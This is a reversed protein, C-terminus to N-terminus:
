EKDKTGTDAKKENGHKGDNTPSSSSETAGKATPGRTAKKDATSVKTSESTSEMSAGRVEGQAAVDANAKPEKPEKVAETKAEKEGRVAVEDAPDTAEEDPTEAQDEGKVAGHKETAQTIDAPSGAVMMDATETPVALTDAALFPGQVPPRPPYCCFPPLPIFQALEDLGLWVFALGVDIGFDVLNEIAGGDGRLWDTFNFVGSAVMSEFFNYFVMIQGAFWGVWPIWRVIATAVEFGYQVWPEVAIYIGDITDALNPAIALQIPAPPPPLTGPTAAPGLLRLPSTLLVNLLPPQEALALPQVVAIQQVPPASRPPSAAPTPEQVSPGFAVAAATIVAVGVTLCSRISHGV